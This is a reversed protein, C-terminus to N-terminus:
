VSLNEIKMIFEKARERSLFNCKFEDNNLVKMYTKAEAGYEIYSFSGSQLNNIYEKLALKLLRFIEKEELMIDSGIRDYVKARITSLYKIKISIM